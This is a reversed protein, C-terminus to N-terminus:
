GLFDTRFDKPAKANPERCLETLLTGSQFAPSKLLKDKRSVVLKDKWRRTLRWSTRPKRPNRYRQRFATYIGTKLGIIILISPLIGDRKRIFYPLSRAFHLPAHVSVFPVKRILSDLSNYGVKKQLGRFPQLLLNCAPEVNKLRYKVWNSVLSNKNSHTCQLGKKKVTSFYWYGKQVSDTFAHKLPHGWCRRRFFFNNSM